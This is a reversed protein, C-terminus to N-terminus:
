VPSERNILKSLNMILHCRRDTPSFYAKDAMTKIARLDALLQRWERYAKLCMIKDKVEYDKVEGPKHGRKTDPQLYWGRLQEKREIIMEDRIKRRKQALWIDFSAQATELKREAEALVMGADHNLQAATTGQSILGITDRHIALM